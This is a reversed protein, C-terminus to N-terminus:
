FTPMMVKCMSHNRISVSSKKSAEKKRLNKETHAQEQTNEGGNTWTLIERKNYKRYILTQAKLIKLFMEVM